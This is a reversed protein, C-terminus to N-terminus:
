SPINIYQYVGANKIERMEFSSIRGPRVAPGCGAIRYERGTEMM